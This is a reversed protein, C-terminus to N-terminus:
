AFFGGLTGDESFRCSDIPLGTGSTLLRCLGAADRNRLNLTDFRNSAFWDIEIVASEDVRRREISILRAAIAFRWWLLGSLEEFAGHDIAILSIPEVQYGTEELVERAAAEALTEGAELAGSPFYWVPGGPAGRDENIMLYRGNSEVVVVVSAAVPLTM